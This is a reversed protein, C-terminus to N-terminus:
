VTSAQAPTSTGVGQQITETIALTDGAAIATGTITVAWSGNAAAVATGTATHTSDTVTVTAGPLASLPPGTITASTLSVASSVTAGVTVRPAIVPTTGPVSVNGLSTAGGAGDATALDWATATTDTVATSSTYHTGPGYALVSGTSFAPPATVTITLVNNNAGGVSFTANVGNTLTAVATSSTLTVSSTPGVAGLPENFTTKIIDGTTVNGTSGIPQVTTGLSVPASPLAAFTVPSTAVTFPASSAPPGDLPPGVGPESNTDQEASVAYVFTGVPPSDVTATAPPVTVVGNVDATGHVPSTTIAAPLGAVGNTIPIRFIRYQFVDPNVPAAWTITFQGATNGATPAATVGTPAAPVDSNTGDFDFTSPGAPNYSIDVGDGKVLLAPIAPSLFSAFQAQSLALGAQSSNAGPTENYFYTSGANTYTFTFCGTTTSGHPCAQFTGATTNVSILDFDNFQGTGAPASVYTLSTGTGVAVGSAAAGAATVNLVGTVGNAAETFVVPIACDPSSSNVVFSLNGGSTPGVGKVITVVNGPTTATTPVGNVSAISSTGPAANNGTVNSDTKGEGVAAGATPTAGGPPTFTTAGGTTKPAGAATCPFLAISVNQGATTPLGTVSYTVAGAAPAATTSVPASGTTSSSTLAFANVSAVAQFAAVATALTADPLAVIGGIENGTTATGSHKAAYFGLRGADSVSNTILTSALLTGGLPGAALADAGGSASDGSALDFTANSFGLTAIAFDSAMGATDSRDAGKFQALPAVAAGAAADAAAVVAPTIALDGGAVILQQIGLAAITAAAQPSLTAPDTLIVPLKKNYAIPGMSLADPFAAGSVLVATKKGGIAGVATAPPATNIMQMTDYRTAGGLRTVVLTGGGTATSVTAGLATAVDAGVANTQGLIIVNKTKLSSLAALTEPPVAGSSNVLLIPATDQGALYNGALADPFNFGTAVLVTAAGTPFAKAAVAAATAFRNAGAVRVTAFAATAGAQPAAVSMFGTAATLAAIGAVAGRSLRSIRFRL